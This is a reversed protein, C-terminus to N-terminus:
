REVHLLGTPPQFLLSKGTCAMRSAFGAVDNGARLVNGNIRAVFNIFCIDKIIGYGFTYGFHRASKSATGSPLTQSLKGAPSCCGRLWVQEAECVHMGVGHVHM